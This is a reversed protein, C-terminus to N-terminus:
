LLVVLRHWFAGFLSLNARAAKLPLVENIAVKKCNHITCTLFTFIALLEDVACIARSAHFPWKLDNLTMRQQVLRRPM